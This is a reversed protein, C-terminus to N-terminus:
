GTVFWPDLTSSNYALESLNIRPITKIASSLCFSRKNYYTKKIENNEYRNIWINKWFKM